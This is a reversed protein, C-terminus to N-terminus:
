RYAIRHINSWYFIQLQMQKNRSSDKLKLLFNQEVFIILSIEIQGNKASETTAAAWQRLVRISVIKQAEREINETRKKM